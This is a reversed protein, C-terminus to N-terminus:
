ELSTVIALKATSADEYFKRLRRFEEMLWDVDGAKWGGPYIEL